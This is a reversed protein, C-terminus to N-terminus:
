ATIEATHFVSIRGEDPDIILMKWTMVLEPPGTNLLHDTAIEIATIQVITKGAHFAFIATVLLQKGEGTLTAAKL